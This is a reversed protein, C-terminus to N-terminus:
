RRSSEKRGQDPSRVQRSGYLKEKYLKTAQNILLEVVHKRQLTQQELELVHLVEAETLEPMIARLRRVSALAENVHWKRLM